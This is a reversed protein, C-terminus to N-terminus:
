RIASNAVQKNAEVLAQVANGPDDFNQFGADQLASSWAPTADVADTGDEGQGQAAPPSADASGSDIVSDDIPVDQEVEPFADQETDDNEVSDDSM